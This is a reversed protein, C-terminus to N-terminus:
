IIQKRMDRRSSQIRFAFINYTECISTFLNYFNIIPLMHSFNNYFHIIHFALVLILNILYIVTLQKSHPPRSKLPTLFLQKSCDTERIAGEM